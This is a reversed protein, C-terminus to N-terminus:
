FIGISFLLLALSIGNIHSDKLGSGGLRARGWSAWFRDSTADYKRLWGEVKLNIPITFIQQGSAFEAMLHTLVGVALALAIIMGTLLEYGIFAYGFYIVMVAIYVIGLGAGLSHCVPSGRSIRCDSCDLNMLMGVMAALFINWSVPEMGILPNIMAMAAAASLAHTLQNAM